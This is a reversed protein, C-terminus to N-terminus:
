PIQKPRESLDVGVACAKSVLLSECDSRRLNGYIKLLSVMVGTTFLASAKPVKEESPAIAGGIVGM